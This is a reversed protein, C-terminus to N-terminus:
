TNRAIHLEKEDQMLTYLRYPFTAYMEGNEMNKRVAFREAPALITQGQVERTPIPPLAALMDRWTAKQEDDVPLAILRPLVAHLGAVEPMPNTADWWTELVQAPQMHIKGQENRPWHENFFTTIEIALPM